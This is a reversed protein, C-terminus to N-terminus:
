PPAAGRAQPAITTRRSRMSRTTSNMLIESVCQDFGTDGVEGQVLMQAPVPVPQPHVGCIKAPAADDPVCELPADAEGRVPIVKAILAAHLYDECVAVDHPGTHPADRAAAGPLHELVTVTRVDVSQEGLGVVAYDWERRVGV